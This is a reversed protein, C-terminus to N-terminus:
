RRWTLIERETILLDLSMDHAQAPLQEVVQLSFGLGIRIAQPAELGLFRDYFGAGYGLRNGSRDFVSGPLVAVEISAPEIRGQRAVVPRPEPIGQYGSELDVEPHTIGVPVLRNHEPVTLPVSIAKGALLCRSILLNTEVESRFSCYFFLSRAVTVLPHCLFSEAILASFRQRDAVPMADRGALIEKRLWQRAQEPAEDM